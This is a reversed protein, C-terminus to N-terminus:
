TSGGEDTRSSDRGENLWTIYPARAAEKRWIQDRVSALEDDLYAKIVELEKIDDDYGKIVAQARETNEPTHEVTM